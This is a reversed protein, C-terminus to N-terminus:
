RRLLLDFQRAPLNSPDLPAPAEPKAALYEAVGYSNPIEHPLYGQAQWRRLMDPVDMGARQFAAPEIELIIELGINNPAWALLDPMLAPEAGEIDIKLLRARGREQATLLQSLPAGPVTYAQATPRHMSSRGINDDKAMYITVEGPAATAAANVGRVHDADNLALNACMLDYIPPAAEIAVVRGRDNLMASGPRKVISAALLSFYGINAGVDVFTDGPHLRSQIYATLNPEWRGFWYIHKQILDNTDTAVAAGFSTRAEAKIGRWNLRQDIERWLRARGPLPARMYPRLTTAAATALVGMAGM